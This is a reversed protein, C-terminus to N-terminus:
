SCGPATLCLLAVCSRGTAVGAACVQWVRVMGDVHGTVIARGDMWEPVEALCCSVIDGGCHAAALPRGNVDTLLVVPGACVVIDGTADSIQVHM